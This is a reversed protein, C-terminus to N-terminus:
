YMLIENYQFYLIITRVSNFIMDFIAKFFTLKVTMIENYNNRNSGGLLLTLYILTGPRKWLVKSWLLWHYRSGYM